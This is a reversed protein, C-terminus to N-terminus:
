EEKFAAINSVVVDGARDFSGGVYFINGDIATANVLSYTGDNKRVGSGLNRYNTGDWIVCRNMQNFDADSAIGGILFEGTNSASIAYAASAVGGAGVPTWVNRDWRAINYVSKASAQRFDGVVILDRNRNLVCAYGWAGYAGNLQRLGNGLAYWNWGDTKAVGRVLYGGAYQFTGTAYVEGSVSDYCLGTVTNDAGSGIANWVGSSVTWRAVRSASVGGATTFNGGVYVHPGAFTIAQVDGGAVGTGLSDWTSSGANWKKIGGTFSGGAYVTGDPAVAVEYVPGSLGAGMASWATGNWKAIRNASVGGIQTFEGGAYLTGPVTALARVYGNAGGALSNWSPGPYSRLSASQIFLASDRDFDQVDGVAIKIRYQYGAEVAIRGRLVKTFGDYEISYLPASVDNRIHLDRAQIHNVMSPGTVQGDRRLPVRNWEAGSIGEQKIFVAAIDAFQLFEPYEDSAFVMKIEVYSHTPVFSFQLAAVDNVQPSLGFAPVLGLEALMEADTSAAHGVSLADTDNPGAADAANGTTLIVGTDIGLGSTLGNQFKGSSSAVGTFSPAPSSALTVNPGILMTALTTATVTPTGTGIETIDTTSLGLVPVISSLALLSAAKRAIAIKM